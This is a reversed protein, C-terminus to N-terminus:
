GFWGVVDILIDASGNANNVEIKGDAAVKVVVLNPVTQGAAFNLDSANPMNVANPWITLWSMSPTSTNTATVNIVVAKPPTASGMSPVGGVGAVTVVFTSGGGLKSNFGGTGNRSDVIRAPTVGMNSTGSATSDTFYGNVDIILDTAGNANTFTVKGGTGVPIIVRNPRTSGASWNLNSAVPQATGTPYATLWSSGTTNTVTANLVVASVGTAPVGGAGTIQVTVTGGAGLTAGGNPLGSGPRTDTVRAPPLAVFGGATSGSSPAFYGELDAIVDTAGNANNITVKGGSGLNVEVLNAVTQGAVWNLNSAV